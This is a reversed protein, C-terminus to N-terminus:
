LWGLSHSDQFIQFPLNFDGPFGDAGGRTQTLPLGRQKIENGPLPNLREPDRDGSERSGKIKGKRPKKKEKMNTSLEFEESM